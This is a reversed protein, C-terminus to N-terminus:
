PKKLLNEAAFPDGVVPNKASRRIIFSIVAVILILLLNLSLLFLSGAILVLKHNNFQLGLSEFVSEFDRLDVTSWFDSQGEKTAIYNTLLSTTDKQALTYEKRQLSKFTKALSIYEPNSEDQKNVLKGLKSFQVSNYNDTITDPLTESHYAWPLVKLTSISLPKFDLVQSNLSTGSATAVTALTRNDPSSLLERTLEDIEVESGILITESNSEISGLGNKILQTVADEVNKPSVTTESAERVQNYLLPHTYLTPLLPFDTNVTKSTATWLKESCSTYINEPVEETNNLVTVTDCRQTLANANSHAAIYEAMTIKLSEEGTMTYENESFLDSGTIAFSDLLSTFPSDIDAQTTAIITILTNVNPTTGVYFDRTWNAGLYQMTSTKSEFNVGGIEVEKISDADWQSDPNSDAYKAVLVNLKDKLEQQTIEGESRPTFDLIFLSPTNSYSSLYLNNATNERRVWELPNYRLSTGNKSFTLPVEAIDEEAYLAFSDITDILHEFINKAPIKTATTSLYIKEGGLKKTILLFEEEELSDYRYETTGERYVEELAGSIEPMTESVETYYRHGDINYIFWLRSQDQFVELKSDTYTFTLSPSKAYYTVTHTKPQTHGFQNELEEKYEASIDTILLTDDLKQQTFLSYSIAGAVVLINVAISIQLFTKFRELKNPKKFEEDM